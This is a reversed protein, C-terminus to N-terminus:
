QKEAQKRTPQIVVIHKNRNSKNHVQKTAAAAGRMNCPVLVCMVEHM